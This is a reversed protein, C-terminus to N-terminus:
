QPLEVPGDQTVTIPQPFRAANSADAAIPLLLSVQLVGDIRQVDGAIWDCAIAKRPLTAGDPLLSFDLAVGNLTLVDSAAFIQLGDDRRQPSLQILFM